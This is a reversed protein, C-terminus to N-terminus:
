QYIAESSGGPEDAIAAGATRAGDLMQTQHQGLHLDRRHAILDQERHNLSKSLKLTKLGPKRCSFDTLSTNSWIM